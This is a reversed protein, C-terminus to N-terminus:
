SARNNGKNNQINSSDVNSIVEQLQMRRVSVNLGFMENIEKCAEKRATEQLESFAHIIQNNSNAEPVNVREKKDVAVNDFGLFTLLENEVSKKYDMLDNGLFPVNTQLVDIADLNLGKDVFLAPINGDIEQFIRKFTFVDKDDCAFIYPTKCAKVNVDMTREAELLKSTYFMIFPETALRLKNNQIIVCDDANYEKMYQFGVAQYSIPEQYVNFKGTDQAELCMHSMAPDKFFIAKGYSFLLKEIHKSQIDDPLGEWEFASCALLKFKDFIIRATLDNLLDTLTARKRAM